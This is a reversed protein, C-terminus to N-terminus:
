QFYEGCDVCVKLLGDKIDTWKFVPHDCGKGHPCHCEYLFGGNTAM